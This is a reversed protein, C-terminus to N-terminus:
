VFYAAPDIGYKAPDTVKIISRVFTGDAKQEALNVLPGGAMPAGEATAVMRVVPRHIQGLDPNASHVIGIEYSDLIVCTGVPYVGLVNILAKVLAPEMGRRPNTWMEKLVEDPQIPSTQYARRTTAADFGDAVAVIKSFVSLQRARISKPYGSLDIKMHHEYAVIM